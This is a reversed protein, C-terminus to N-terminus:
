AEHFLAFVQMACQRLSEYTSTHALILREFAYDHDVLMRKIDADLDDDAMLQKFRSLLALGSAFGLESAVLSPAVGAASPSSIVMKQPIALMMMEQETSNSVSGQEGKQLL